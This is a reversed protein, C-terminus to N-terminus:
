WTLSSTSGSGGARGSSTRPAFSVMPTSSAQRTSSGKESATPPPPGMRSPTTTKMVPQRPAM